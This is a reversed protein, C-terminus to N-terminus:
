FCSSTWFAHKYKSLSESLISGVFFEYPFTRMWDCDRFSKRVRPFLTEDLWFDATLIFWDTRLANVFNNAGRWYENSTTCRLNTMFLEFLNMKTFWNFLVDLSLLASHSSYFGPLSVNLKTQEAFDKFLSGPFFPFTQFSSAFKKLFLCAFCIM